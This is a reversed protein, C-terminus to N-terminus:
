VPVADPINFAVGVSKRSTQLQSNVNVATKGGYRFTVINNISFRHGAEDLEFVPICVSKSQQFRPLEM